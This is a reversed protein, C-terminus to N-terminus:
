KQSMLILEAVASSWRKELFCGLGIIGPGVVVVDEGTIDGMLRTSHIGCAIPEALVAQRLTVNEPIAFLRAAEVEVYDAFAGDLGVGLFGLKECVNYRGSRCM